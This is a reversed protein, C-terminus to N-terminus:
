GRLFCEACMACKKARSDTPQSCATRSPIVSNERYEVMAAAEQLYPALRTAATSVDITFEKYPSGIMWDRCAYFVSATPHVRYGNREALWVYFLLQVVHDPKPVVLDDFQRKSISKLESMILYQGDKVSIDCNGVIKYEEDRLTFEDYRDAPHNCETCHVEELEAFTSPGIRTSGCLCTWFGFVQDTGKIIRDKVFEHIANGMVHVLKMSHWNDEAPVPIALNQALSVMRMCKYILDSIHTYDGDRYPDSEPRNQVFRSVPRSVRSPEAPLSQTSRRRRRIRGEVATRRGGLQARPM